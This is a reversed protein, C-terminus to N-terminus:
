GEDAEPEGPPVVVAGMVKDMEVIREAKEAEIEAVAALVRKESLAQDFVIVPKLPAARGTYFNYVQKRTTCTQQASSPPCHAARKRNKTCHIERHGAEIAQVADHLNTAEIM